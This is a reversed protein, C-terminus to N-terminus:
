HTMLKMLQFVHTCDPSGSQCGVALVAISWGM